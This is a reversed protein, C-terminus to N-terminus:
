IGKEIDMSYPAIRKAFRIDKGRELICIDDEKMRTVKEPVCNAYDGIFRATDPDQGAFFLKYDCNNIITKAVATSYMGELQSISQLIISVYIQRSRIVSIIKDFDKITINSAMDDLIIRVPVQLRGDEKSDAENCLSQFLQQYFVNIVSDMSRDTDSVELFLVTKERGIDAFNVTSKGNFMPKIDDYLFPELANAAFKLICAYTRESMMVGKYTDYMAVAFSDPDESRLDEFFSVRKYNENMLLFLKAVTIMNRESEEIVELTFAMLSVLLNRASEVWFADDSDKELPVLACAITKLDKQKYSIRGDPHHVTRVFDLMNYVASKEPEVFNISEVRFGHRTLYDKYRNYLLGKTDVVVMSTEAQLMEPVVHSGTKGSGTPGCVLYHKRNIFKKTEM